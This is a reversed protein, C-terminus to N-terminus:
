SKECLYFTTPFSLMNKRPDLILWMISWVQNSLDIELLWM